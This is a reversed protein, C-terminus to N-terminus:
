LFWFHYYYFNLYFTYFSRIKYVIEFFLCKLFVEQKYKGRAFHFHSDPHKLGFCPNELSRYYFPLISIVKNYVLVRPVGFLVPFLICLFLCIAFLSSSKYVLSFEMVIVVDEVCMVLVKVIFVLKNYQIIYLM